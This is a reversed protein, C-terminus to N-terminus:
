EGVILLAGIHGGFGYSLCLASKIKKERSKGFCYDLRCSPDRRTFGGTGPIFGKAICLSTTACELAGSAGLLHGTLPKISSVPIKDGFLRYVAASESIDNNQTGTGHMNIYDPVISGSAKKIARAIAEGSEDFRVASGSTDTTLGTGGILGYIKRCDAKESALLLVAAGEGMVFGDRGLCYPSSMNEAYVGANKFGSIILGNISAETAGALAYDILGAKIDRVASAVAYIGSACAACINKVPGKAGLMRASAYAANEPLFDAFNGKLLSSVGGKTSSIYIGTKEQPLKVGSDRVADKVARLAFDISTERHLRKTQTSLRATYKVPIDPSTEKKVASRMLRLPMEIDEAKDAIPSVAGIGIIRVAPEM